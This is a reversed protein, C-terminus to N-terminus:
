AILGGVEALLSEASWRDHVAAEARRRLDAAERNDFGHLEAVALLGLLGPHQHVAHALFAEIQLGVVRRTKPEVRLSLYDRGGGDLPVAAAPLARGYFDVFLTDTPRVYAVRLGGPPLTGPDLGPNNPRGETTAAPPGPPARGSRAGNPPTAAAETASM